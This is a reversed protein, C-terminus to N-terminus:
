EETIYPLWFQIIANAPITNQKGIIISVDNYGGSVQFQIFRNASGSLIAVGIGSFGSLSKSYGNSIYSNNPDRIPTPIGSFVTESSTTDVKTRLNGNLIVVHGTKIILCEAGEHYHNTASSYLTVRSLEVSNDLEDLKTKDMISMFGNSTTTAIEHTHNTPAAGINQPTIGLNIRAQESSNAGTGGGSIPTIRNQIYSKIKDWLYAVGTKDLYNM